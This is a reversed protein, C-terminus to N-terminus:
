LLDETQELIEEVDSRDFFQKEPTYNIIDFIYDPVIFLTGAAAAIGYLMVAKGGLDPGMFLQVRTGVWEQPRPTNAGILKGLDKLQPSERNWHLTDSYGEESQFKIVFVGKDQRVESIKGSQLGVCKMM